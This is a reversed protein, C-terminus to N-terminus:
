KKSRLHTLLEETSMGQGEYSAWEELEAETPVPTIPEWKAAPNVSRPFLQGIVNGAEDVIEVVEGTNTPFLKARTAEDITIRVM